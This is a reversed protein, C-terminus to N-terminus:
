RGAGDLAATLWGPFTTGSPPIDGGDHWRGAAVRSYAHGLVGLIQVDSAGTLVALTLQDCARNLAQRPDLTPTYGCARCHENSPPRCAYCHCGCGDSRCGDSRCGDSRCGDSRCGDSWSRTALAVVERSLDRLLVALDEVQGETTAQSRTLREADWALAEVREPDPEAPRNDQGTKDTM